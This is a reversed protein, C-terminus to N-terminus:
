KVAFREKIPYSIGVLLIDPTEESIKKVISPLDEENFYGNIGQCM